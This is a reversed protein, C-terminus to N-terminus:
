LAPRASIRIEVVAAGTEAVPM